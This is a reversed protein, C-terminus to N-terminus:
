ITSNLVDDVEDAYVNEMEELVEDPSKNLTRIISLVVRRSGENIDSLREDGSVYTPTMVFCTKMLHRLVVQGDPTGFARRYSERLSRKIM